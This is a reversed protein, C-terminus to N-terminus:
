NNLFFIIKMFYEVVKGFDHSFEIYRYFKRKIGAELLIESTFCNLFYSFLILIIAMGYGAKFFAYPIGTIFLTATMLVLISNILTGPGFYMEFTSLNKGHPPFHSSHYSLKEHDSDSSSHTLLSEKLINISHM